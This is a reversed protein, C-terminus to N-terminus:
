GDVQAKLAAIHAPTTGCCGGLMTAGLAIWQAAAAAYEEPSVFENAALGPDQPYPIEGYAGIPGDWREKLESIAPGIANLPSHMIAVGTPNFPLLADILEALSQEPNDFAVLSSGNVDLRISLGIWFALRSENAARCARAAHLSDQMMELLILDAGYDVFRNCLELYARYELDPAPYANPDFHPPLCSLSGAVLVERDVSKAADRAAIIAARNITDFRDDLGAGALVFRSTAFTNATVIDAGAAVYDRHIDTLLAQHTLNAGASWCDDALLVGHRRLESGFGGDLLRIQNQPAPNPSIM